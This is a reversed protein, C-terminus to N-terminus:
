PTAGAAIWREFVRLEDPKLPINSPMILGEGGVSIQTNNLKHWVYSENLSGPKVLMMTTLQLAPKNVLNAYAEAPKLSFPAMLIPSSQHCNCAANILPLVNAAFGYEGLEPDGPEPSTTDATCGVLQTVM